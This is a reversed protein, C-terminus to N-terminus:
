LSIFAPQYTALIDPIGSAVIYLARDALTGTCADCSPSVPATPELNIHKCLCWNPLPTAKTCCLMAGSMRTVSM